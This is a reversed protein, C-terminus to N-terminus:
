RLPNGVNDILVKIFAYWFPGIVAGLPPVVTLTLGEELLTPLSSNCM